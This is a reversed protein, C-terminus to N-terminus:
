FLKSVKTSIKVGSSMSGCAKTAKIVNERPNNHRLADLRQPKIVNTKECSVTVVPEEYIYDSPDAGEPVGPVFTDDPNTVLTEPEPQSEVTTDETSVEESVVNVEAADETTVTELVEESGENDDSEVVTETTELTEITNVEENTTNEVTVNEVTEEVNVLKKPRGM